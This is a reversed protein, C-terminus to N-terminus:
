SRHRGVPSRQAQHAGRRHDGHGQIREPAVKVEVVAIDTPPKTAGILVPFIPVKRDGLEKARALPGPGFNHQGDTFLVVGLIEGQNARAPELARALPLNLDTALAKNKERRTNFLDELWTTESVEKDFSLLEVQHNKAVRELWGRGSPALIEHVIDLRSLADVREAVVDHSGAQPRLAQALDMKEVATRQLDRVDMSASADVAILVRSPLERVHYRAVSPQLGAVLWLLLLVTLRLLLLCAAGFRSLLQLEYRYLWGLLALPLLLLLALAVPNFRPVLLLFTEESLLPVRFM